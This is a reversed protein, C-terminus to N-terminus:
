IRKAKKNEKLQINTVNTVESDINAMKTRNKNKM